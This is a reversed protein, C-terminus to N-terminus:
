VRWKDNINVTQNNVFCRIHNDYWLKVNPLGKLNSYPNYM